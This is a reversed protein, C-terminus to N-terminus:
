KDKCSCNCTNYNITISQIECGQFLTKPDVENVTDKMSGFKVRKSDPKCLNTKFDNEKGPSETKHAIHSPMINSSRSEKLATKNSLM